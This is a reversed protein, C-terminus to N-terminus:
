SGNLSERGVAALRIIGDSYSEGPGRLAALKDAWGLSWGSRGRQRRADVEPEFLVGGPAHRRRRFGRRRHRHLNM